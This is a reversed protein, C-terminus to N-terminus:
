SRLVNKEEEISQANEIVKMLQEYSIGIIIKTSSPHNYIYELIQNM